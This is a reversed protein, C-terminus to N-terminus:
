IIEGFGILRWHNNLNRAIGVNDKKLAIIPINLSVDITEKSIKEIIGVTITTNVSLMLVEKNKLPEVKERQETGIVEEFLKTKISIKHTIEPLTGKLSIVCGNLSDAKTLSPDLSTELAISAGPSVEKISEKGKYISLIKTTLTQYVTQNNKKFNLGPKIEIEDGVKLKGKKLIGGLVGGRLKSIETGPKNIDFSRAVLLIPKSEEDRKPIELNCLEQLIKDININQQASVPIIPSNEAITGKVFEKIKKYNEIAKEKSVLDIKNQIIIINNIGKAQLATFHERTQPKIGENAAIILLAADMTAAGSLMNAMLMEHGPADIFSIYRQPTGKTTNYKGESDKYITMESYGIKITIGRKLEESHTDTFKGTIRSLLTTKGHDIHGVIGVNIEPINESKAM